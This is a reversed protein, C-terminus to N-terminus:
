KGAKKWIIGALILLVLGYWFHGMMWLILFGAIGWAPVSCASHQIKKNM